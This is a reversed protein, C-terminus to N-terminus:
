RIPHRTPSRITSLILNREPQIPVILQILSGDCKANGINSDSLVGSTIGYISIRGGTDTYVPGGSDGKCVAESDKVPSAFNFLPVEVQIMRHLREANTKPNSFLSMLFDTDSCLIRVGIWDADRANWLGESYGATKLIKGPMPPESSLNAPKAGCLPAQLQIVALDPAPWDQGNISVSREDTPYFVDDVVAHSCDRYLSSKLIVLPSM